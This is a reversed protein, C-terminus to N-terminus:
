DDGFCARWEDPLDPITRPDKDRKFLEECLRAVSELSGFVIRCPLSKDYAYEDLAVFKGDRYKCTTSVGGQASFVVATDGGGDRSGGWRVGNPDEWTTGHRRLTVWVFWEWRNRRTQGEAVPAFPPETEDIFSM